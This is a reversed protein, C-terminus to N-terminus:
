LYHCRDTNLATSRTKYSHTESAITPKLKNTYMTPCLATLSNKVTPCSQMGNYVLQLLQLVFGAKM